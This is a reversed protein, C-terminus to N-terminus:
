AARREKLERGLPSMAYGVVRGLLLKRQMYSTKYPGDSLGAFVPIRRADTDITTGVRRWGAAEKMWWVRQPGRGINCMSSEVLMLYPARGSLSKIAYVEGHRPKCDASDVVAYQGNQLLPKSGGDGVFITRHGKPLRTFLPLPSREKATTAAKPM